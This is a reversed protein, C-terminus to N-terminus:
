SQKTSLWLKEPMMVSMGSYKTVYEPSEVFQFGTFLKLRTNKIKLDSLERFIVEEDMIGDGGGLLRVKNQV